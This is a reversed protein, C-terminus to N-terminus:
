PQVLETAVAALKRPSFPKSLLTLQGIDRLENQLRQMVAVSGTLLIIPIGETGPDARLARVLDVGNMAGPMRYDTILLDPQFRRAGELALDANSVAHVEFGAGAMKLEIVSRIHPEDDAILVKPM